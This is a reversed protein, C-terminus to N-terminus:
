RAHCRVCVKLADILKTAQAEQSGAEKKVADLEATAIDLKQDITLTTVRQKRGKGKRGRRMDDDAWEEAEEPQM